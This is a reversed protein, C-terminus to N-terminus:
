APEREEEEDDGTSPEPEATSADELRPEFTASYDDEHGPPDHAHEDHGPEGHGPEGHGPEDHSSEEYDHDEYTGPEQELSERLLPDIPEDGEIVDDAARILEDASPLQHPVNTRIDQQVRRLEEELGADRWMRQVERRLKSLQALARMVVQPLDKGFVMVAVAGIVVVELFTINTILAFM